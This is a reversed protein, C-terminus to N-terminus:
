GSWSWAGSSSRATRTRDVDRSELFESMMRGVKRIPNLASMAYQPVISVKRFRFDNM